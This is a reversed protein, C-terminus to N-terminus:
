NASDPYHKEVVSGQMNGTGYISVVGKTSVAVYAGPPVRVETGNISITLGEHDGLGEVRKNHMVCEAKLLSIHRKAERKRNFDLLNDKTM